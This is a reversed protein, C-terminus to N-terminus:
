DHTRDYELALDLEAIAGDVAQLAKWRHGGFQRAADQLDGRANCLAHLAEHIRPRKPRVLQRGANVKACVTKADPAAADGIAKYESGQGQRSKPSVIKAKTTEPSVVRVKEIRRTAATDAQQATVAGPLAVLAALAGAALTITLKM